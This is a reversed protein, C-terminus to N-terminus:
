RGNPYVPFFLIIFVLYFAFCRGWCITGVFGGVYKRFDQQFYGACM